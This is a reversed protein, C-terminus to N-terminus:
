AAKSDSKLAALRQAVTHGRMMRDIEAVGAAATKDVPGSGIGGAGSMARDFAAEAQEVKREVNRPPQAPGDGGMAAQARSAVFDALASEMQLKRARLAQLNEGLRAEAETSRDHVAELEALQAECEVQRVLAAEALDDRGENVAFQAKEGLEAVRRVLMDHQRAAQLRRAIMNEQDMRVDDIARDVERITERMVSEGGALELRDVSDEIRGSLIRRVRDFVSDAM